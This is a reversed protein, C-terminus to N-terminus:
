EMIIKHMQCLWVAEQTAEHFAILESNNTSTATVTQKVSKWSIPANNKLFIYGTQSKGSIDDSKFGADAYGVIELTGGITDHIGLDETGRLYRLVHRVGNWHRMAPKQSHRALVSITFSIDPRTLTSLYLVAGVVALYRTRDYFEEEEEEECPRYPEDSTRSQRMMPASLPNAKDMGFRNQLKQTYGTQHLFISGDLLHTVQLGLCFSTKSLLKMEFQTILLNVVYTCTEPTGV